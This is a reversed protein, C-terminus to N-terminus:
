ELIALQNLLTCNFQVIYLTNFVTDIIVYGIQIYYVTRDIGKETTLLVFPIRKEPYNSTYHLSPSYRLLFFIKVTVSTGRAVCRRQM